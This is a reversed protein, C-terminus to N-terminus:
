LEQEVAPTVQFSCFGLGRSSDGGFTNILRTCDNLLEIHSSNDLGRIFSCFRLAAPATETMFLHQGRAVRRRRDLAVRARIGSDVPLTSEGAVSRLDNLWTREPEAVLADTFVAGGRRRASGFVECLDCYDHRCPQGPECVRSGRGRLIQYAAHRFKGKLASGSLVYEGDGRRLVARDVLGAIGYGNGHHFASKFEITLSLTM